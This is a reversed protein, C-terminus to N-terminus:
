RAQTQARARPRALCAFQKFRLDWTRGLTLANLLMLGVRDRGHIGEISLLECDLREFMRRISKHTFFRLHTRDMVGEDVYEWEGQLLLDRMVKYFRVNPISCLFRGDPALKAIMGALTGESDPLHELSDNFVILDFGGDPLQALAQEVPCALVRDLVATAAAAADPNPEIGWVECGREAKLAQGFGGRAAGVDLARRVQAPVFPMLELRQNTFYSSM